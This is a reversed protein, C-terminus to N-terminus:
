GVKIEQETGVVGVLDGIIGTRLDVALQNDGLGKDALRDGYQPIVVIIAQILRTLCLETQHQILVNGLDARVGEIDKINRLDRAIGRPQIFDSIVRKRPRVSGAVIFNSTM